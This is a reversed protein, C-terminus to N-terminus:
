TSRSRTPWTRRAPSCRRRAPRARQGVGAVEGVMVPPEAKVVPMQSVGYERLIEIADRVTESPHTHVLAPCRAPSPTCSTASPRARRRSACSATPRWGSTTSSRPWTAAAATPCCCSSSTTPASTAARRAPRGRRGHRLLRRGAPGGRPGAAPDDRVLRRRHRRHGRRGREPRLREPWFDEGVGEVLYPRGTGGSYVSGEPDAGIVRVRAARLGGQPVPRHRQHHRRHRRRRRLPHGPRRHRGLDGPRDDRLPQQPGRPQLVPRAELRRRDGQGAPRQGLLLLRPPGARRRDPMVVVEAGYAKLVNRKDESVKDPCCSSAATAAASPSSPWASAPTAAPRSSSPAAPSSRARRAEAAEVMRLAIRDKVSGGPNLYEVKALVTAAIGETSSTSSSSPRTGSWTPSTNPM